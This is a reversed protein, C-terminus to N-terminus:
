EDMDIDMNAEPMMKRKRPTATTSASPNELAKIKKLIDEKWIAYERQKQEGLYDYRDQFMSDGQGVKVVEVEKDSDEVGDEAELGERERRVLDRVGDVWDMELWEQNTGVYRTAADLERFKVEGFGEWVKEEDEQEEGVKVAVKVTERARKLAAVVKKRMAVYEEQVMDSEPWTVGRWVYLYLAGLLSVLNANVWEDETRKGQPAVISEIGSMVVPGINSPGIEKLLFRLTPKMWKPLGEENGGSTTDKRPFLTGRFQHLPKEKTATGPTATRGGASRTSRGASPSATLDDRAAAQDRLRSTPTKLTRGSRPTTTTGAALDAKRPTGRGPTSSTSPLINSLHSYLRKYIRPPIPPRPDIPPLNLSIKLRDCALHACAYTRAIEEEAKLTSARHRSQALLSSALDILPPPLDTNHTPLLSLLSQEISRNM